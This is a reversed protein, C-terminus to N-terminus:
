TVGTGWISRSAGTRTALKGHHYTIVDTPWIQCQSSVPMARKQISRGFLLYAFHWLDDIRKRCHCNNECNLWAAANDNKVNDHCLAKPKFFDAEYQSNVPKHRHTNKSTRDTWNHTESLTFRSGLESQIFTTTQPITIWFKYSDLSIHALCTTHGSNAQQWSSEHNGSPQPLGTDTDSSLSLTLSGSDTLTIQFSILIANIIWWENFIFLCKDHWKDSM